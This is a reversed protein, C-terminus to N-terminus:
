LSGYIVGLVKKQKQDKDEVGSYRTYTEYKECLSRMAGRQGGQQEHSGSYRDHGVKPFGPM